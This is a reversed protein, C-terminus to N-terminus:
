AKKKRKFGKPDKLYEDLDPDEHLEEHMDVIDYRDSIEAVIRDYLALADRNFAACREERYLVPDHSNTWNISDSFEHCLRLMETLTAASLGLAAPKAIYTGVAQPATDNDRKWLCSRGGYDFCFTLTPREHAM